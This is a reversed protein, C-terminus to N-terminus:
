TCALFKLVFELTKRAFQHDSTGSFPAYQVSGEHTENSLTETCFGQYPRRPSNM